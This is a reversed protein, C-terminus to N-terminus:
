PKLTKPIGRSDLELGYKNAQRTTEGPKVDATTNQKTIIGVGAAEEELGEFPDYRVDHGDVNGQSFKNWFEDSNINRDRPHSAIGKAEYYKKAYELAKTYLMKGLGQRRAEVALFVNEVNPYKNVGAELDIGIDIMGIQNPLKMIKQYLDPLASRDIKLDSIVNIRFGTGFNQIKFEIKNAFENLRM